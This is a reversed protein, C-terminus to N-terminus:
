HCRFNHLGCYVYGGYEFFTGDDCQFTINRHEPKIDDMATTFKLDETWNITDDSIRYTANDINMVVWKNLMYHARRGGKGTREVFNVGNVSAYAHDKDIILM